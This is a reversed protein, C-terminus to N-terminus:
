AASQGPICVLATKRTDCFSPESSCGAHSQLDVALSHGAEHTYHAELSNIGLRAQRDGVLRMLRVGVQQTAQVDRPGVLNPTGVDGIHGHGIPEHIQYGDHIPVATIYQGPLQGVRQVTRKTQCRQPSHQLLALWVDEVGILPNLERSGIESIFQRRGLDPDAHIATAPIQVVDEHFPQPPRDLVFIDIQFLVFGSSDQCGNPSQGQRFCGIGSTAKIKTERYNATEPGWSPEAAPPRDVLRVKPELAALGPLAAVLPSEPLALGGRAGKEWEAEGPLGVQWASPLVGAAQWRATLWRTFSLAEYWNIGVVPHNPLNFPRGYDYPQDRTLWEVESKAPIWTYGRVQGAQWFGHEIAEAWYAEEGYGGAEVLIQFQANTVPYQGLWYGYPIDVEHAPKVSDLIDQINPNDDEGVEDAGMRFTGPPVYCFPM